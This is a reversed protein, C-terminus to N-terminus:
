IQTSILMSISIFLHNKSSWGCSSFGCHVYPVDHVSHVRDGPSSYLVSSSFVSSVSTIVFVANLKIDLLSNSYSLSCGLSCFSLASNSLMFRFLLSSLSYECHIRAVQSYISSKRLSSSVCVVVCSSSFGTSSHRLLFFYQSFLCSVCGSGCCSAESGHQCITLADSGNCQRFHQSTNSSCVSCM